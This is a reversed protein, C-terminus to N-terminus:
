RSAVPTEQRQREQERVVEEFEEESDFYTVGIRVHGMEDVSREGGTVWQDPDPNHRNETTNDFTSTVILVTGKPLLPVAHDEFLFLTHWGHDWNLKSMVEWSGDPYIAEVVQYKGRMHMHGRVSHIMAPKDLVWIGKMTTVGNPPIIIDSHRYFRGSRDMGRLGLGSAHTGASSRISIDGESLYKPVYGEPYFWVAVQLAADIDRSYPHYHSNWNIHSGPRIRRGQDPPFLRGETGVASDIFHERGGGMPDDSDGPLILSPNAHHFVYRADLTHPRVGVAKIWRETTLPEGEIQAEEITTIPSPWDDMGDAVVTFLPGQLVMDPPGLDAEFEWTRGDPWEIPPPLDAPDGFPAGADVWDAITRIEEVSLSRDNKFARVGVTRDVPWPPMERKIVRQRILPAWPLVEEYTLLSMPAVSAPRHCTQCNGQLIPAVDRAFTVDTRPNPLLTVQVPYESNNEPRSNGVMWTQASLSVVNVLLLLSALAVTLGALGARGVRRNGSMSITVEGRRRGPICTFPMQRGSFM